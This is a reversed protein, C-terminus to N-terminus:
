IPGWDTVDYCECEYWYEGTQDDYHSDPRCAHDAEECYYTECLWPEQGVDQGGCMRVDMYDCCEDEIEQTCEGDWGITSGPDTTGNCENENWTCSVVNYVGQTTFNNLLFLIAMGIVILVLIWTKGSKWIDGFKLSSTM